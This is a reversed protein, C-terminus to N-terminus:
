FRHAYKLHIKYAQWDPAEGWKQGLAYYLALNGQARALFIGFGWGQYITNQTNRRILALDYFFPFQIQEDLLLHFDTQMGAYSNGALSLDNFGRISNSGGWHKLVAPNQDQRDVYNWELRMKNYLDSWRNLAWVRYSGAQLGAAFSTKEVGTHMGIEGTLYGRKSTYSMGYLWSRSLNQSRQTLDRFSQLRVQIGWQGNVSPPILLGFKWEQQLSTSDKRHVQYAATVGLHHFLLFPYSLNFALHQEMQSPSSWQTELAIGRQYLNYLKLEAEGTLRMKGDEGKQFGGLAMIENRPTASPYVYIRAKKRLFEIEPARELSYNGDASIRRSLDDVWSQQFPRGSRFQVMGYLYTKKPVASGKSILTDMVIHPGRDLEIRPPGSDTRLKIWAFPYGSNEMLTLWEMFYREIHVSDLPSSIVANKKFGRSKLENLWEPNLDM